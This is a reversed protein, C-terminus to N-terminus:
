THELRKALGDIGVARRDMDAWPDQKKQGLRRAINEVTYKQPSLGGALAEDWDLPTAIPAGPKARVSYPVVAHQAYANRLYDLFIRDGRADKRQEVTLTDPHRDALVDCLRHAVDRATDFDASRDLPVVVHLGRSGTTQVFTPADLDALADRVTRAAEQVKGFDDTGGPDLDFILRDPNDPRDVRSLFAHLTITGQNALYALTAEDEAVVYSVKGKTKPLEVRRIWDPFYGPTKKQFFGDEDIGEPYRELVLARDHLHPLMRDAVRRYHEVLDGKTLGAEPFLEKDQRTLKVEHEGIKM